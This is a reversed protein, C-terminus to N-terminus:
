DIFYGFDTRKKKNLKKMFKGTLKYQDELSMSFNSILNEAWKKKGKFSKISAEGRMEWYRLHEDFDGCSHIAVVDQSYKVKYGMREANKTFPKDIKGRKDLKFGIKQAAALNYVKIGKCVKDSWPEWLRWGRLAIKDSQDKVCQYMFNIAYPHLLMDDDVRLAFRSDCESLIREHAEQWGFDKIITTNFKVGVQNEVSNKCHKFTSRGNTIIFVEITGDLDINSM